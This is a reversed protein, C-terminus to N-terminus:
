KRTLGKTEFTGFCVFLLIMLNLLGFLAFVGYSNLNDPRSLVPFGIGVIIVLIWNQLMSFGLVKDIMVESAYIFGVPGLSSEFFGIFVLILIFKYLVSWSYYEFLSIIFMALCMGISGIQNLFKRGLKDVFILATVTTVMNVFGVLITLLTKDIQSLGRVQFIQNSYFIIANIGTLQQCIQIGCGTIM